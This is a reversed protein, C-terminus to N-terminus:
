RNQRSIRLNLVDDIFSARGAYFNGNFPVYRSEVNGLKMETAWKPKPVRAGAPIEEKETVPAPKLDVKEMEEKPPEYKEIHGPKLSVPALKMGEFTPRTTEVKFFLLNECDAYYLTHVHPRLMGTAWSWSILSFFFFSPFGVYTLQDYFQEDKPRTFKEILEETELPEIPTKSREVKM